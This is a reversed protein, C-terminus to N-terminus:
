DDAIAVVVGPLKGWPRNSCRCRLALPDPKRKTTIGHGNLRERLWGWVEFREIDFNTEEPATNLNRLCERSILHGFSENTSEVFYDESLSLHEVEFEVALLEFRSDFTNM